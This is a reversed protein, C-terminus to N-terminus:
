RTLRISRRNTWILPDLLLPGCDGSISSFPARGLAKTVKQNPVAFGCAPSAALAKPRPGPNEQVHTRRKGGRFRAVGSLPAAMEAMEVSIGITV